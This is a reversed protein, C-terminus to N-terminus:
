NFPLGEDELGDDINMFGESVAQSPEPRSETAPAAAQYSQAAPDASQYSQAAATQQYPQAAPTQQYSQPAPTGQYQQQTGSGKGDAFEANEVIVDTTYIRQGNKEYSGTQIRGEIGIRTGQFTWKGLFEATKGFAVCSIFDATQQQVSSDRRVRRDVALTFRLVAMNNDNSAYRLEPNKTLRGILIVKNM